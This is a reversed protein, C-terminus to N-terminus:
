DDYSPKVEFVATSGSIENGVILMPKGTPSDAAAVFVLGEPGLDGYGNLNSVDPDVDWEERTNLYDQFKPAQPDTIDYVLVGGMRELGVFVYTKDGIKGLTLGEPEPGKADSRSDFADAEDHGSNFYTACPVSRDAKLMCDSSALFQEIADGSDWVLAGDEDWISFSRGGYAYINDYMLRTDDFATSGDALEGAKTYLVPTGDPNKQYGITWSTNLRGLVEDDRCGKPDGKVAGCWAFNAPNLLGGGALLMLQPPVDGDSDRRKELGSKNVLHKVRLEEVFGKSSAMKASAGGDSSIADFAWYANDDEGWARSDGENATVLYTAGGAAYAYISDPLYMGLVGPKAEINIVGDEDDSDIGNGSNGAGHASVFGSDSKGSSDSKGLDKFGLAKIDTITATAIDLVGLANNEQLTVWATKSDASVAIYEPEIDQAVTSPTVNGLADTKQGYIRVEDPLPKGGANWARFDAIKVSGITNDANLTIVGVGGEPDIQYDDSPEGELAILVTKGDPTFTVNDPLAGIKGGQELAAADLLELTTADFIAVYGKNTKVKDQVALAVVGNRVAVSNVELDVGVPAVGDLRITEALSPIGSEDFSLVDVSGAKANVVFGRKNLADYAPIEAAGEAFTDYSSYRDIFALSIKSPTREAAPPPTEPAPAPAASHGSSGGGCGSLLTVSLAAAIAASLIKREQM